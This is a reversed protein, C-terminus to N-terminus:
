PGAERAQADLYDLLRAAEPARHGRRTVVAGLAVRAGSAEGRFLRIRGLALAAEEGYPSEPQDRAIAEFAGAAPGLAASDYRALPWGREADALLALAAAYRDSLASGTPRFSREVDALDAVRARQPLTLASAGALAAYLGVLALGALVVRQWASRRQRRGGDAESPWARTAAAEEVDSSPLPEPPSPM